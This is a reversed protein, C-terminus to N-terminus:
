NTENVDLNKHKKKAQLLDILVQIEFSVFWKTSKNTCNSLLPSNIASQEMNM